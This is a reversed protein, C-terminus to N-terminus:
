SKTKTLWSAFSPISLRGESTPKCLSFGLRVAPYPDPTMLPRKGLPATTYSLPSFYLQLDPEKLNTDSKIFGGGQNLSLSLPGGRTLLYQLAVMIKGRLPRLLQNLSPQNTLLTHDLGIHDKLHLGVDPLDSIVEINLDKLSSAPGIGSVQM